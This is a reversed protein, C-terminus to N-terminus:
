PALGMAAGLPGGRLTRPLSAIREVRPGIRCALEYPITGISEAVEPITIQEAGDGGYVTAVEGAEVSPQSTLDLATSDMSVSGIVPVRAGRVLVSLAGSIGGRYDIGDHYGAAMLGLLTRRRAHFRAGYGVAAGRAIWRVALIRSRLSLVPEFGAARPWTRPLLGYAALGVRVGGGVARGALVALSNAAHVVPTDGSEHLADHVLRRFRALVRGAPGGPGPSSTALHTSLGALRLSMTGRVERAAAVFDEDDLGYRGFGADAHVHVDVKRRRPLAARELREITALDHVTVELGAAVAPEEEGRSLPGTVLLGGRYGLARLRLAEGLDAVGLVDALEGGGHELLCAPDHGYANAKVMLCIRTGPRLLSRIRALNSRLADLDIEAWTKSVGV